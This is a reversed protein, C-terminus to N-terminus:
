MSGDRLSLGILMISPTQSITNYNPLFGTSQKGGSQFIWKEPMAHYSFNLLFQSQFQLMKSFHNVHKPSFLPPLHQIKPLLALSSRTKRDLGQTSNLPFFPKAKTNFVESLQCATIRAVSQKKDEAPASSYLHCHTSPTLFPTHTCGCRSPMLGTQGKTLLNQLIAPNLIAKALKCM